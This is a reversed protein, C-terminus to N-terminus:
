KEIFYMKKCEKKSFASSSTASLSEWPWWPSSGGLPRNSRKVRLWTPSRQGQGRTSRPPPPPSPSSSRPTRQRTRTSPKRSQFPMQKMFILKKTPLVRFLCNMVSKMNAQLVDNFTILICISVFQRLPVFIQKFLLVVQTLIQMSLNRGGNRTWIYRYLM